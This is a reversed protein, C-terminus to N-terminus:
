IFLKGYGYLPSVMGMTLVNKAPLESMAPTSFGM